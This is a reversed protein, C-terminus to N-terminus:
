RFTHSIADLLPKLLYQIAPQSEGLIFVEAPMGPLLPTAADSGEEALGAADFAVAVEFYSVGEATQLADASVTEVVGDVEPTFRQSLSPFRVRTVDGPEVGEVDEPAVRAQIILRDDKPVIHLIPEGSSVVGGITHARLGIVRGASPARIEARQLTDIATVRQEQLTAVETQVTRLETLVQERFGKTLSVIRMESEGISTKAEAIASINLGRQGELEAVERELALVRTQTVLGRSFLDRLGVLEETVLEIQRSRADRQAEQGAIQEQLQLVRQRLLAVEAQRSERRAEFLTRQGDVMEAVRSADAREALEEPIAMGSRDDREALLRSRRALNEFLSSEVADLQSRTVTTDLRLLLDGADVFDGDRVNLAEVIGGELHQVSRLDTEVQVTAGAITAQQIPALVSWAFLGGVLVAIAYKGVAIYRSSGDQPAPAGAGMTQLGGTM